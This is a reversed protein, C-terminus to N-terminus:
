VCNHAIHSIVKQVFLPHLNPLRLRVKQVTNGKASGSCANCREGCSLIQFWLTVRTSSVTFLMIIATTVMAYKKVQM